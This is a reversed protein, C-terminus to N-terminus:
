LSPPKREYKGAKSQTSPKLLVSVDQSSRAAILGSLAGQKDPVAFVDLDSATREHDIEVVPSM